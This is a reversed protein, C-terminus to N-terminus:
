ASVLARRSCLRAIVCRMLHRPYNFGSYPDVLTKIKTLNARELYLYTAIKLQYKILKTCM